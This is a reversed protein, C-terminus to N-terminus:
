PTKADGWNLEYFCILFLTGSKQLVSNLFSKNGITLIRTFEWTMIIVSIAYDSFLLCNCATCNFSFSDMTLNCVIEIRISFSIKAIMYVVLSNKIM